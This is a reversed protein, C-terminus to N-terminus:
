REAMNAGFIQRFLPILLAGGRENMHDDDYYIPLGDVDGWCRGESCLYPLPDLLKVGCRAAAMDQTELLYANRKQYEELTMSVRHYQNEMLLTRGMTKPVNYILEPIPRMIYVQRTKAFECATNIIGNRMENFTDESFNSYPTSLYKTPTSSLNGLDRENPTNFLVASRNIIIIPAKNSITAQKKLAYNIFEKCRFSPNKSDKLESITQCNSLTWDLVHLNKNPLSKEISRVFSSAHSDGIVIIGLDNGGYTCEPVATSSSVHCESMRPNKNEMENFISNVQETLRGPIGDQWRILLSPLTVMLVAALLAGAGSWQPMRTLKTRAPTEVLRYSLWGCVLTLALCFTISALSDQLQMYALAVAFPWHWLYLSYSCDGLWQAIRNGTWLSDQRASILVLVTGLVPIMARWGPWLDSADFLFISAIILALGSGELWRQTRASLAPTNAVLYVLGGALMEWARTPLLYFAANPKIPTVIISLLLSILLGLVMMIILPTRGPRIKWIALLALPLILYFQWEVSLSWTHLLPKEHSAADFYGASLWFNINSIFGLASITETSLARYESKSLFFYGASIVFCCLIILAPVIRKARSLYFNLISFKEKTELNANKEIGKVIIGTMLFGSIVFFVDVGVFGGSFGSIGFHYLIVAVVAWARLGNIDDRFNNKRINM